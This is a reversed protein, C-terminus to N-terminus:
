YMGWLYGHRVFGQVAPMMCNFRFNYGPFAASEFVVHPVALLGGLGKVPYSSPHFEFLEEGKKYHGWLTRFDSIAPHGV